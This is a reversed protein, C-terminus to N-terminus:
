TSPFILLKGSTLGQERSITPLLEPLWAMLVKAGHSM